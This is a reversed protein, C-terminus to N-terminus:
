RGALARGVAWARSATAQFGVVEIVKDAHDGRDSTVPASCLACASMETSVINARSSDSWWLTFLPRSPRDREDADAPM